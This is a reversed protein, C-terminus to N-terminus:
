PTALSCPAYFGDPLAEAYPEPRLGYPHDLLFQWASDRAATPVTHGMGHDCLFGFYGASAMANRYNHSATSFNIVVADDAGGFLVMAAFRADPADTEPATRAILGGSYTVVSALYSARRYSMQATHLAGASFGIAHVHHADIGISENACAVLEDAVALDNEMSGAALYWNFTGAAPDSMPAVVVGGLALIADIAPMGLAYPTETPSGGAGHWFFVLPGDMTEAADSVWIMANRAGVGAPSVSVTGTTHFDPCAGTAEPLTPDARVPGADVPGTDQGADRPASADDEAVWADNPLGADTESVPSAGCAILAAAGFPSLARLAHRGLM